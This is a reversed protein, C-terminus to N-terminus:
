MQIHLNIKFILSAMIEVNKHGYHVLLSLMITYNYQHNAM